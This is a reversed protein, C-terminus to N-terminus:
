VQELAPSGLPRDPVDDYRVVNHKKLFNGLPQAVIQATVKFFKGKVIADIDFTALIKLLINFM